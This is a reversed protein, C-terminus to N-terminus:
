ALFSRETMSETLAENPILPKLMHIKTPICNQGYHEVGAWGGVFDM